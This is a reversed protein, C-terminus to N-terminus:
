KLFGPLPAQRHLLELRKCLSLVSAPNGDRGMWTDLINPQQVLQPDIGIPIAAEKGHLRDHTGRWVELAMRRRMKEADTLNSM